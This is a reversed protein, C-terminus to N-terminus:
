GVSRPEASKKATKEAYVAFIASAADSVSLLMSSHFILRTRRRQGDM